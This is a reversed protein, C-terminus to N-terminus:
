LRQGASKGGGLCQRVTQMLTQLAAVAGSSLPVNLPKGKFIALLAAVDAGIADLEDVATLIGERTADDLKAMIAIVDRRCGDDISAILDEAVPVQVPTFDAQPILVDAM